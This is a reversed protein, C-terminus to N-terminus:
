MAAIKAPDVQVGNHSIIHGLYELKQKSFECKSPNVFFSNQSLLIFFWDWTNLICNELFVISSSITLSSLFLSVSTHNLFPIWQLKSPPLLTVFVLHCSLFNMTAVTPKSLQRTYMRQMFELKIIALVSIWNLFISQGYPEDIMDDLPPIPYQDKITVSNLERYDICLRWSGNKKKVLLVPSSFSSNIHHILGM